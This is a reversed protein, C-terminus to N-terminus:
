DDTTASTMRMMDTTGIYDHFICNCRSLSGAADTACSDLDAARGSIESLCPEFQAMGGRWHGYAIRLEGVGGPGESQLLNESRRSM